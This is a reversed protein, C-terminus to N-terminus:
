HKRHREVSEVSDNKHGIMHSTLLEEDLVINRKPQTARLWKLGFGFLVAVLSLYIICSVVTGLLYGLSYSSSSGAGM